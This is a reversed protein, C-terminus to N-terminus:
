ARRGCPSRSLARRCPPGPRRRLQGPPRARRGAKGRVALGDEAAARTPTLRGAEQRTAKVGAPLRHADGGGGAIGECRDGVIGGCCGAPTDPAVWACGNRQRDARDCAGHEDGPACGEAAYCGVIDARAPTPDLRNRVAEFVRWRAAAAPTPAGRPARGFRGQRGLGACLAIAQSTAPPSAASGNPAPM